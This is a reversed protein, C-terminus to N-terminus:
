SKCTEEEKPDVISLAMRSRCINDRIFNQLDEKTISDYMEPFLYPDYGGFCGEAMAVAISEFSNLSKLTTGFNARVVRQYYDEDIGERVLREAEDLIAQVVAHPDKSDGGAYAYAIGPLVDFSSGFTGNILGESYLRAFLASSDGMLMDCALDGVINYRMQEQGEPAPPCKFGVLFTPMAVEMTCHTEACAPTLPEQEGYDRPIIPGSTKPLVEEALRVIEQEDVDGVVCLCMNAPTYFAKHCDYLTQATIHSISEVSGAVSVRATSKEYLALMMQKYVQWEPNDEIM